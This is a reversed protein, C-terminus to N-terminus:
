VGVYRMREKVLKLDEDQYIQNYAALAEEGKSSVRIERFILGHLFLYGQDLLEEIKKDIEGKTLGTIKQITVVYGFYELFTSTETYGNSICVLIKYDCKDLNHEEKRYCAECYVKNNVEIKEDETLIISCFSCRCVKERELRHGKVSFYTTLKVEERDFGNSLGIKKIEKEFIGIDTMDGAVEAKKKIMGQSPSENETRLREIEKKLRVIEGKMEEENNMM